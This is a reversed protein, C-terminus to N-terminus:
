ELRLQEGAAPPHQYTTAWTINARECFASLVDSHPAEHLGALARVCHLNLGPRWIHEHELQRVVREFSAGCAGRNRHKYPATTLDWRLVGERRRLLAFSFDRAFALNVILVIEGIRAGDAELRVHSRRNHLNRSIWRMPGAATKKAAIFDDVDAQSLAM